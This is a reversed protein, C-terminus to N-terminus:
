DRPRRHRSDDTVHRDVINVLANLKGTMEDLTTEVRDLRGNSKEIHTDVRGVFLRTSEALQGVLDTHRQVNGGLEQVRSGLEQVLDGIRGIQAENRAQGDLIFQMAKEVEEWTM